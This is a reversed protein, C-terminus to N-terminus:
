KINKYDQIKRFSYVAVFAGLVAIVAVIGNVSEIGTYALENSAKSNNNVNASTNTNNTNNTNNNSNSINTNTNVSNLNTNNSLNTNTTNNSTNTGGVIGPDDWDINSDAFVHGAFGCILMMSLLIVVFSKLLNKM